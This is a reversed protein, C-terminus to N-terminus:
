HKPRRFNLDLSLCQSDESSTERSEKWDGATFASITSYLIEQRKRDCNKFENNVLWETIQPFLFRSIPLTTIYVLLLFLNLIYCNEMSFVADLSIITLTTPPINRPRSWGSVLFCKTSIMLTQHCISRHAATWRLSPWTLIQSVDCQMCKSACMRSAIVSILRPVSLNSLLLPLTLYIM